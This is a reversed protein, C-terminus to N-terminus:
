VRRRLASCAVLGIGILCLSTPEPVMLNLFRGGGTYVQMSVGTGVDYVHAGSGNTWMINGNGLEYVGRPGGATFSSVITGAANIRVVNNSSFGATLVDGNSTLYLQEVFNLDTNNYFTGLSAGAYTYRHIDDNSDNSSVLLGGQYDMVDFPGTSNPMPLFGQNTGASNFLVISNGPATNGTGDNTVHLLNNIVAIGRVNDLGGTAGGGFQGLSAGTMSWRSVRDGVQESVWIENGAQIAEVPTGGALGFLNSNVLSGDIPSFLVLRNNTSDPMMLFQASVFGPVLFGLLLMCICARALLPFFRRITLFM